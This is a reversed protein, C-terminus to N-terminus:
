IKSRDSITSYVSHKGNSRLIPSLNEFKWFLHYPTGWNEFIEKYFSGKWQINIGFNGSREALHRKLVEVAKSNESVNWRIKPPISVVSM